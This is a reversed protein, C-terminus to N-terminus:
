TGREGQDKGWLFILALLGAVPALGAIALISPYDAIGDTAKTTDLWRGVLPHTFATATWTCFGLSGTVKGQNRVTLEQSFSYYVPFLAMSGFGILLFLGMLLWGAGEVSRVTADDVITVPQRLVASGLTPVVVTQVTLITAGLFVLLRSGHVSLGGRRLGLTLFGATLCGIDAAIYYASIFNNVTAADYLLNQRLYKALWVRLIHWTLNITIVAIMLVLFRRQQFIQWLSEDPVGTDTKEVSAPAPLDNPRVVRLWLIVWFTGLVGVVFFPYRWQAPQHVLLTVIQPTIIAGIAAGSQLISNGMTRQSPPLIHQTTRLACPWNGAETIGLVFRCAMLTLLGPALGTAFGAASWGLLAAPYLWRVTWRDAAWGMVLAGIAFGIGFIWEVQGYQEDNLEMEGQIEVATLNITLRDMYNLMTALLMLGCVLWKWSASRSAALPEPTAVLM